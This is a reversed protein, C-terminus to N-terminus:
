LVKRFYTASESYDIAEYFEPARRTALASIIAGSDSAWNEFQSMLTKAIGKRRHDALVMIEEVLAVKGNVYFTSHVFGLCYGLAVENDEAILVIAKPDALVEDYSQAFAREDLSFSVVFEKVLPLLRDRDDISAERVNM